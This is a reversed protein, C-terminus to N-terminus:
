QLFYVQVVGIGSANNKGRVQATYQGPPITTVLAAELDHSPQLGTREIEQQQSSKWDDNELVIGGNQDRLQLTTDPLANSIGFDVLSPGIARVVVKVPAGQVIFGAIMLKDGAQVLGRTALNRLRASSSASLDYVDVVGTGTSNSVGRVIATYSGSTLNVIIAPELDNGPALGSAGIEASQNATILGGIQTVKWDNNTAVTAGEANHIELTPDSLPDTVGVSSLSPGLARVMIRKTSDYPADVIFGEILADDGTGVPLRTSINAAAGSTPFEYAGIDTVASGNGDGDFSRQNGAFDYPPLFPVWTGADIAPSGVQLRYNNSSSLFAPDASINGSLGTQNPTGSYDTGNGYVLNAYWKPNSGGGFQLDYGVTNFAVINNAYFHDSGFRADTRIGGGNQVITNNAVVPSAGSPLMLNIARCSNQSLINNTIRPSSGNVFSLVGALNQTDCSNSQFSNRDIVPSSNNGSIAAGFGGDQQVNDRFINRTITPSAGSLYVGAGFYANGHQITFGSLVSQWGERTRFTVVSGNNSGDIITADPGATGQVSIAKGLYDLHEFYTGPAVLIVDGAVATNIAQQISPRDAPVRVTGALASPAAIPLAVLLGVVCPPLVLRRFQRTM